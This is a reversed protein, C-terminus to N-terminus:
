FLVVFDQQDVSFVVQLCCVVDVCDDYGDFVIYWYVQVVDGVYFEVVYCM